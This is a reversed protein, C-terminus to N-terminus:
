CLAWAYCRYNGALLMQELSGLFINRDQDDEYLARGEIGRAMVHHVAGPVM